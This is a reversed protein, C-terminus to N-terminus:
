PTVGNNPDEEEAEVLAAGLAHYYTPLQRGPRTDVMWYAHADPRDRATGSHFPQRAWFAQGSCLVTFLAWITRHGPFRLAFTAVTSQYHTLEAYPWLDRLNDRAVALLAERWAAEQAGAETQADEQAARAQDKLLQLAPPLM